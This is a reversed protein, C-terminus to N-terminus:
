DKLAYRLICYFAKFADRLGIKKGEEYTRGFYSIGMEYIRYRRRAIKATMEPEIGFRKQRLTPAIEDVVNRRMVKYCTEMDTLNLGTFMNSMTTLMRNGVAHWFYLVRHAGDSQFRSGYVVDAMDDLIPRLLRYYEFPDYELDADQIVVVDGQVHSFGTRVAAGKGKNKEHYIITLDDDQEYQKLLERTGDTSGDDVLIIEKPIEVERIKEIITPLTDRENYVPTVVSLLFGEPISRLGLRHPMHQDLLEFLRRHADAGSDQLPSDCIPCTADSEEPEKMNNLDTM